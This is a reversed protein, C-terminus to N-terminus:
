WVMMDIAPSILEPTAGLALAPELLRPIVAFAIAGVAVGEVTLRMWSGEQRDTMLSHVIRVAIWTLGFAGALYALGRGSEFVPVLEAFLITASAAHSVGPVLAVGLLALGLSTSTARAM